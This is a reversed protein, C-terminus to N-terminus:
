IWAGGLVALVAEELVQEALDGVLGQGFRIPLRPMERRGRVELLRETLLLDDLHDRRVVEVRIPRRRVGRVCRPDLRRCALLQGPRPPDVQPIQLTAM